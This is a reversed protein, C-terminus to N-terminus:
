ITSTIPAEDSVEKEQLQRVIDDYVPLLIRANNLGGAKNAIEFAELVVTAQEKTLTIIRM